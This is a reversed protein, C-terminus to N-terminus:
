RVQDIEELVEFSSMKELNKLSSIEQFRFSQIKSVFENGDFVVSYKLVLNASM